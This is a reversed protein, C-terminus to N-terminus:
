PRYVPEDDPIPPPPRQQWQRAAEEAEKVRALHERDLIKRM